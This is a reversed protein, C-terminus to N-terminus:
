RPQWGPPPVDPRMVNVNTPGAPARLMEELNALRLQVEALSATRLRLFVGVTSLTGTLVALVGVVAVLPLMSDYLQYAAAAGIDVREKVLLVRRVIIAAFVLLAVFAVVWAVISTRRVAADRRKERDIASWTSDYASTDQSM